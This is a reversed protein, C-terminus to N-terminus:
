HDGSIKFFYWGAVSGTKAPFFSRLREPCVATDRLAMYQLGFHQQYSELTDLTINPGFNWATWGQRKLAFLSINPSQDQPCLVHAQKPIGAKAVQETTLFASAPLAWSNEPHNVFYFRKNMVMQGYWISTALSIILGWLLKKEGFIESLRPIAYWCLFAPIALLCLYYYDHERLMRFWLLSYTLGGSFLVLTLTKVFLSSSKWYIVLFYLGAGTVLYLGPSALLLLNRRLMMWLTERIFAADYHWIPRTTALFYAAHHERNYVSTWQYFLLSFLAVLVAAGTLLVPNRFVPPLPKQNFKMWGWSFLLSIPLIAMSLKLLVALLAFAAGAGLWGPYNSKVAKQLGAAMLVVFCFAPADPLFGPGYYILVPSTLLLGAALVAIEPRKVQQLMMWGFAWGAAFLLALGIWRLPYEPAGPIRSALGALWYLLPFEGVAHADVAQFLNQVEPSFPDPHEAYHMALAAGDAQRWQHISAPPLTLWSQYGNALAILVFLLFYIATYRRLM